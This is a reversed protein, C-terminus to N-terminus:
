RSLIAPVTKVCRFASVVPFSNQTNFRDFLQRQLLHIYEKKFDEMEAELQAIRRKYAEIQKDAEQKREHVRLLEANLFRSKALFAAESDEPISHSFIHFDM